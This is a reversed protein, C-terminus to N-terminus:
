RTGGDDAVAGELARDLVRALQVSGDDVVEGVRVQEEVAARRPAKKGSRLRLLDADLHERHGLGVPHGAPPEPEHDAVGLDDLSNCVRDPALPTKARAASDAVRLSSGPRATSCRPGAM